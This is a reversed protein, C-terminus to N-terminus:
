AKRNQGSFSHPKLCSCMDDEQWHKSLSDKRAAPKVLLMSFLDKRMVRLEYEDSKENFLFDEM